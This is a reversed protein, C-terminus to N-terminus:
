AGGTGPLPKRALRRRGVGGGHLGLRAVRFDDGVAFVSPQDSAERWREAAERQERAEVPRDPPPQQEPGAGPADREGTARDLAPVHDEPEEEAADRHAACATHEVIDDIAVEVRLDGARPGSRVVARSTLRETPVGCYDGMDSLGVVIGEGQDAIFRMRVPDERGGIGLPHVEITPKNTSITPCVELM